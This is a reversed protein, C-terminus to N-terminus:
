RDVPFTISVFGRVTHAQWNTAAIIEPLTAGKARKMMAIIEAKKNSREAAPKDGAQKAQRAKKPPKAAAKAKRGSKLREAAPAPKDGQGNALPQIAKWVRAVAKKRDQFKNVEANGPISNYIDVLRSLPWDAAAKALATQSDFSIATSDGAQAAEESTAYVTINNDENITFTAM